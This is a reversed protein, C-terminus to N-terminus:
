CQLQVSAASDKGRITRNKFSSVHKIESAYHKTRAMALRHALVGRMSLFVQVSRQM